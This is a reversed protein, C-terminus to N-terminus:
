TMDRIVRLVHDMTIILRVIQAWQFVFRRIMPFGTRQAYCAYMQMGIGALAVLILLSLLTQHHYSAHDVILIMDKTAHHVSVMLTQNDVSTMSLFVSETLISLGTKQASWVNKITGTGIKAASIQQHPTIRFHFSVNDELWTTDQMALWAFDVMWIGLIATLVSLSVSMMGISIHEILVNLAPQKEGLRASLIRPPFLQTLM